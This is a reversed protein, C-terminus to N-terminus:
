FVALIMRLLFAGVEFEFDGDGDEVIIAEGSDDEGIIASTKKDTM